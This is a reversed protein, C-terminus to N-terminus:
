YCTRIHAYYCVRGKTRTTTTTWRMTTTTTTAMTIAVAMLVLMYYQGHHCRHRLMTCLTGCCRIACRRWRCSAYMVYVNRMSLKPRSSDVRRRGQKWWQRPVVTGSIIGVLIAATSRMGDMGGAFTPVLDFISRSCRTIGRRRRWSWQQLNWAAAMVVAAAPYTCLRSRWYSTHCSRSRISVTSRRHRSRM